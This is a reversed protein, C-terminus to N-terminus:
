IQQFINSATLWQAVASSTIEYLNVDPYYMLGDRNKFANLSPATVIHVPLNNWQKTVRYKFYYKRVSIIHILRSLIRFIIKCNKHDYFDRSLKYVEIMDGETGAISTHQCNWQELIERYSFNSMGPILETARRQVNEILNM